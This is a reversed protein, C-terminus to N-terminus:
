ERTENEFEDADTHIVNLKIEGIPDGGSTVDVNTKKSWRQPFRRQLLEVAARWDDPAAETIHEAMVKESQARARTTAELFDVFKQEEQRVKCNTHGEQVRELEDKGRERWNYFVQHSVGALDCAGKVSVGKELAECITEQREDTLKTPRGM